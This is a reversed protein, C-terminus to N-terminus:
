TVKLSIGIVNVPKNEMLVSVEGRYTGANLNKSDVTITFDKDAGGPVAMDDGVKATVDVGDMPARVSGDENTWYWRDFSVRALAPGPNHIKVDGTGKRGKAVGLEVELPKREASAAATPVLERLREAARDFHTTVLQLLGGYYSLQLRALDLLFDNGAVAKALGGRLSHLARLQLLVADQSVGTLKEIIDAAGPDTAQRAM